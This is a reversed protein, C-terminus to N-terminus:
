KQRKRHKDEYMKCDAQYKWNSITKVTGDIERLYSGGKAVSLHIRSNHNYHLIDSELKEYYEEIGISPNKIIVCFEDGGIRFCTGIERFANKLCRSMAIILEDGASHGYHDNTKKLYNIDIFILLVNKLAAAEYQLNTMYEEFARRNGLGTMRDEKALRRLVDIETKARINTAASLLIRRLLGIVYIIIGIEFICGYYSIKLSWYLSLAFVGSAALIGFAYFITQLEEAKQKQYEKRLLVTICICGSFLLIHTVFLMEIFEFIEYYKLIGQIIANLYFCATMIDLIWYKEMHETNKIFHIMPIGMLMFAFFSISSNIEYHTSYQQVLGSDTICWISCIILFFAADIFRIDQVRKKKLYIGSGIAFVSLVFMMIAIAIFILSQFIDRLVMAKQNGVYIQPIQYVDNETNFFRIQLTKGEYTSPLIGECNLKSKMQENRPFKEDHYEYLIEDGSTITVNYQAAKVSIVMGAEAASLKDNYLILSDGEINVKIPIEIEKREGNDYYYWGDSLHMVQNENKEGLYDRASCLTIAMVLFLLVILVKELINKMLKQKELSM